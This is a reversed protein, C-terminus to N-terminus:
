NSACPTAGQTSAANAAPIATTSPPKNLKYVTIAGPEPCAMYCIGCGSCGCGVYEATKYGYRNLRETMRIVHLACAEICLGCGKCENSDVKLLGRDKKEPNM